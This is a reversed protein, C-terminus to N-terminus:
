RMRGSNFGLLFVACLVAAFLIDQVPYKDFVQSAAQVNCAPLTVGTIATTTTATSKKLTGTIVGTTANIAVVNPYWMAGTSDPPTPFQQKWADLASPADPYCIDKVQFPM